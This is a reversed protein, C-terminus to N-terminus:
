ERADLCDGGSGPPSGRSMARTTPRPASPPSDISRPWEWWVALSPAQRLRGWRASWSGRRWGPPPPVSSVRVSTLAHLFVADYHRSAARSTEHERAFERERADVDDDDLPARRVQEVARARAAEVRAGDLHEVLAADGIAEERGPLRHLHLPEGADGEVDAVEGGAVVVPEGEPLALELRDQGLPDDLEAHGDEAAVLHHADRLVRAADIGRKVVARGESRLVEHAAVAPAAEHALRGAEVKGAEFGEVLQIMASTSISSVGGKPM